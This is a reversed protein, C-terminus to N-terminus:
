HLHVDKGQIPEFKFIKLDHKLLNYFYIGPFISAVKKLWTLYILHYSLDFGAFSKIPSKWLKLYKEVEKTM